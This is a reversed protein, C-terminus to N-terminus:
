RKGALASKVEDLKVRTRSLIEWLLGEARDGSAAECYCRLEPANGSMRLHVTENSALSLRVGDLTSLAVVESQPIRALMEPQLSIDEALTKLFVSGESGVNQLRDSVTFRPPLMAAVASLPRNKPAIAALVTIMPTMADRTPLETLREGNASTVTGGLLFGGNAEFGVSLRAGATILQQIAEIVYPSGIRTRVIRPFWGCLELATSSSLPTAVADADLFKATLIGLADGRLVAGTEDIVLPRDGDGDTSVLADLSYEIVWARFRAADVSSVAETDIPVFESTRGLSLTTAGLSQLIEIVLDRGAASHEYVGITLGSLSNTGFFNVYRDLYRQRVDSARNVRDGLTETPAQPPLELASVIGAEDSKTIEGNARYFKLGNRDFPIHSGTVMIAPTGSRFSELALAPTPIVGCDVAVAGSSRIAQICADAIRPSSPRLDRGVLVEGAPEGIGDLYRVFASAYALCTDDTMETVLGRLGSTGFKISLGGWLLISKEGHM